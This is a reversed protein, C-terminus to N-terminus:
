QYCRELRKLHSGLSMDCSFVHVHRLFPFRLHSVSDRKNAAYFLTMLVLSILALISLVCCFLMHLNHPSLSSVILWVILLHLLNGRSSVRSPPCPSGCSIWQFNAWVGIFSWWSVSMHFVRLSYSYHYFLLLWNFLSFIFHLFLLFLEESFCFFKQFGIEGVSIKDFSYVGPCNM